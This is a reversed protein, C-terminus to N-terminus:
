IDAEIKRFVERLKKLCRSKHAKVTNENKYDLDHMIANISYHEYYFKILIEKCSEGLEKLASRIKGSYDIDPIGDDTIEKIEDISEPRRSRNISNLLKNKGIAFLYTKISNDLHNIKKNVLNEYLGIVAEQFCDLVSEQEISYNRAFRLFPMRFCRYVERIAQSRDSEFAKQLVQLKDTEQLKIM